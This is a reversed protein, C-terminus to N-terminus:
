SCIAPAYRHILSGPAAGKKRRAVVDLNWRHRRTLESCGLVALPLAQRLHGQSSAWFVSRVSMNWFLWAIGNEVTWGFENTGGVL